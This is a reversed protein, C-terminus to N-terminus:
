DTLNITALLERFAEDYLKPELFSVQQIIQLDLQPTRPQYLVPIIRTWQKSHLMCWAMDMEDGVWNSRM